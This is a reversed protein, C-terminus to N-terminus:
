KASRTRENTVAIFAKRRRKGPAPSVVADTVCFCRSCSMSLVFQALGFLGINTGHTGFRLPIPWISRFDFQAPIDEGPRFVTYIFYRVAPLKKSPITMPGAKLGRGAPPPGLPGGGTTKRLYSRFYQSNRKSVQWVEGPLLEM